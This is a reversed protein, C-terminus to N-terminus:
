VFWSDDIPINWCINIQHFSLRRHQIAWNDPRILNTPHPNIILLSSCHCHRRFFMFIKYFPWGTAFEASKLTKFSPFCSCTELALFTSEPRNVHMPLLAIPIASKSMKKSIKPIFFTPALGILQQPLSSPYWLFKFISMAARLPEYGTFISTAARLPERLPGLDRGYCKM